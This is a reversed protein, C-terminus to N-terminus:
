QGDENADGFIERAPQQKEGKVPVEDADIALPMVVGEGASAEHLRDRDTFPNCGCILSCACAIARLQM